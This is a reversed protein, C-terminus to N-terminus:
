FLFSNCIKLSSTYFLHYMCNLEKSLLLPLMLQRNAQKHHSCYQTIDPAPEAQFSMAFITNEKWVSFHLTFVLLSLLFGSGIFTVKMKERDKSASQQETIINDNTVVM